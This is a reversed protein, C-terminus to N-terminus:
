RVSKQCVKAFQAYNQDGAQLGPSNMLTELSNLMTTIILLKRPRKQEWRTQLGAAVLPPNCVWRSRHLM